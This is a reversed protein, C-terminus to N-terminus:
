RHKCIYLTYLYLEGNKLKDVYLFLVKEQIRVCNFFLLTYFHISFKLVIYLGNRM